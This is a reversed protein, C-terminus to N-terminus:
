DDQFNDYKFDQRISRTEKVREKWEERTENLDDFVLSMQNQSLSRVENFKEAFMDESKGFLSARNTFNDSYMRQNNEDWSHHLDSLFSEPLIRLEEIGKGGRKKIYQLINIIDDITQFPTRVWRHEERDYYDVFHYEVGEERYPIFLKEDKPYANTQIEFGDFKSRDKKWKKM